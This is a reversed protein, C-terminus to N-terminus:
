EKEIKVEGKGSSTDKRHLGLMVKGGECAAIIEPYDRELCLALKEEPLWKSIKISFSFPAKTLLQTPFSSGFPHPCSRISCTNRATTCCLIVKFFKKM